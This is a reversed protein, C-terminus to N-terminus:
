ACTDTLCFLRTQQTTVVCYLVPCTAFGSQQEAAVVGTLEAATLETLAERRLTLTRKM